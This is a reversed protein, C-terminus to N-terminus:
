RNHKTKKNILIKMMKIKKTKNIIIINNMMSYYQKNDKKIKNIAEWKNYSNNIKM